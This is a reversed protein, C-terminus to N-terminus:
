RMKRMGAASRATRGVIWKMEGIKPDNKAAIKRRGSGAPNGAKEARRCGSSPRTMKSVLAQSKGSDAGAKQPLVVAVM